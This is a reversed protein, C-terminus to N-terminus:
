QGFPGGAVFPCLGADHPRQGDAAAHRHAAPHRAFSRQRGGPRGASSRDRGPGPGGFQVAAHRPSLACLRGPDRGLRRRHAGGQLGQRSGDRQAHVQGRRAPQQDADRQALHRRCLQRGIANAHRAASPLARRRPGGDGQRRARRQVARHRLVAYLGRDPRPSAALGPGVACVFRARRESLLGGARRGALPHPRGRGAHRADARHARSRQVATASRGHTPLRFGLLQVIQMHQPTALLFCGPPVQQVGTSCRAIRTSISTRSSFSRSTTGAPRCRRRCVAGQGRIGSLLTDGLTAYYLPKVGFRDRAAFLLGNPEDWLVFAFEGRLEHLCHTGLEEYLHLAIESDSQTRLTHGRSKLARQVREYDYFEGNAIIHLREDENAIPQDGTVLDIISLRAHGLGVRGHPAIWQRQGDPGRHTLTKVARALTESAIPERRSFMAVIGCM